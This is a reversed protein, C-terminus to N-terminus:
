GRHEAVTPEQDSAAAHEYGRVTYYTAKDFFQGVLRDLELRQYLGVTSNVLGATRVYDQLRYKILILAYVVESLPINEAQREAGLDCYKAEIRDDAQHGVWEGLHRYVDYTRRYLEQRSLKSYARTRSNNQLDKVVGATLRDAHEEILVVLRASLM